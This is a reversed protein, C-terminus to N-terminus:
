EDRFELPKLHAKCRKGYVPLMGSDRYTRGRPSKLSDPHRTHARVRDGLATDRRGLSFPPSIRGRHALRPRTCSRILRIATRRGKLATLFAASRHQAGIRTGGGSLAATCSMPPKLAATRPLNGADSSWGAMRNGDPTSRGGRAPQM